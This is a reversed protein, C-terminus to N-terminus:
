AVQNARMQRWVAASHDLVAELNNVISQGLCAACNSNLPLTNHSDTGTARQAANCNACVPESTPFLKELETVLAQGLCPKHLSVQAFAEAERRRNNDDDGSLLVRKVEPFQQGVAELLQAGNMDPMQLDSVVVDIDQYNLANLAAKASTVFIMRWQPRLRRLHRELAQLVRPEDDVFLIRTTTNM